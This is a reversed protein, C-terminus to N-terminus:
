IIVAAPPLGDGPPVPVEAGRSTVSRPDAAHCVSWLLAGEGCHLAATSEVPARRLEAVRVSLLYIRMMSSLYFSCWFYRM